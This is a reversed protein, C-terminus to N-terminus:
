RLTAQLIHRSNRNRLLQLRKLNNPVAHQNSSSRADLYENQIERSLGELDPFVTTETIGARNLDFLM